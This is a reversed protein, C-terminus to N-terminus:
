YEKMTKRIWNVYHCVSSYVAPRRPRSCPESGGSVVGALTGHCVLPGGSDGQCSGRGGEWLGACLMRKSIQGPYARRCLRPELISINACQLTLPYEVIPSSVAGWGSILCQTGPSVCTQSINLPQVAPGLRAKRPLRILMIDNNHDQARLDQNFGPHPFFDTVRFLQEPGEWKWLHHEGLRVWLYPKYCHAATLLWRDSILTAGCFLHTFFFLGAQWPQSNPHCEQAGIARTDAWSNGALLSLLACVLGLKMVEPHRPGPTQSQQGQKKITLWAM